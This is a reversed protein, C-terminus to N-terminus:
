EERLKRVASAPIYQRRGYATGCLERLMIRLRYRSIGLENCMEKKTRPTATEM